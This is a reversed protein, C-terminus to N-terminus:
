VASSAEKAVWCLAHTRTWPCFNLLGYLAPHVRAAARAVPPALTVRQCQLRGEPFLQRIRRLPVGRVDPNWPNSVTFDYWLVGGGPRVWRWMTEALQEQFRDDLLSSFVTSQYVVDQSGAPVVTPATSADGVTIRVAAPLVRRARAAREALLEIGQLHEPALGQRLLELLNSGAGCGVELLRMGGLDSWGLRVFLGTIARQREQDILLAARDLLSYRRDDIPRRAYRDRVAAPEDVSTPLRPSQDM